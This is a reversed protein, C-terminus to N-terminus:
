KDEIVLQANVKEVYHWHQHLDDILSNIDQDGFDTFEVNEEELCASGDSLDILGYYESSDKAIVAYTKSFEDDYFCIVDGSKFNNTTKERNDKIEM